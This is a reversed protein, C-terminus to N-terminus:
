SRKGHRGVQEARAGDLTVDRGEDGDGAVEDRAAVVDGHEGARSEAVRDDATPASWRREAADGVVVVADHLVVQGVAVAVAADALQLVVDLRDEDLRHGVLETGDLRGDVLECGVRDEDVRREGADERQQEVVRRGPGGHEGGAHDREALRARIDRRVSEAKAGIGPASPRRRLRASLTSTCRTSNRVVCFSASRVIRESPRGAEVREHEVERSPEVAEQLERGGLELVRAM